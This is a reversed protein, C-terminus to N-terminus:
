LWFCKAPPFAEEDRTDIIELKLPRTAGGLKVGGAANIEEAALIMGREGNQGYASARPVPCGVLIPKAQGQVKGIGAIEAGAGIATVGVTKLFDRRTKEM